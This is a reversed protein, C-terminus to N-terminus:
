DAISNKTSDDLGFEYDALKKYGVGFMRLELVVTGRIAEHFFPVVM